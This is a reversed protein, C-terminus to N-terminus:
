ERALGIREVWRGKWVVGDEFGDEGNGVVVSKEGIGAM